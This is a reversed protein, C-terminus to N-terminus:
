VRDGVDIKRSYALSAYLDGSPRRMRNMTKLDCEYLGFRMVPGLHWEFNDWTSWFYYGQINIGDQIAGHLIHAYDQIAQMRLFDSEDCVGNETIIIPKKYKNWYRNICTRLGEPHYEWIDDHALGLKKIKEPTELYTLPFPDHPIRGYYSMGFFDVNLFKSPVYEMFWWDSLRAPFWGLLNEASFITANHSIGVPQNPYKLKIYEYIVNHARSMNNVVKGAMLPSIKFPPFFGTLWGYSAYVNPENFTNWFSVYQGFEDVVKKAFDIWLKINEVKEWGGIKSFWLPNTFHHLVMMIDVGKLKLDQIFHHYQQATPQDFNGLPARQLKSWMLGMRYNPALSAIIEADEKFRKEHDTTRDFVFGNRAEFGHWDHEFATEIQAASTSTGFIFNDPFSLKM